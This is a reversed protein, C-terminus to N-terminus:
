LCPVELGLHTTASYNYIYNATINEVFSSPRVTTWKAGANARLWCSGTSHSHSLQVASHIWDKTIPNVANVVWFGLNDKKYALKQYITLGKTSPKFAARWNWNFNDKVTELGLKLTEDGLLRSGQISGYLNFLYGKNEQIGHDVHVKWFNGKVRAYITNGEVPFWVKIEDAYRDVRTEKNLQFTEKFAVGSTPSKKNVKFSLKNSLFDDEFIGWAGKELATWPEAKFSNAKAM